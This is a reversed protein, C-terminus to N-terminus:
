SGHRTRWSIRQLNGHGRRRSPPRGSRRGARHRPELATRFKGVAIHMGPSRAGQPERLTKQRPIARRSDSRRPARPRVAPFGASVITSVIHRHGVRARPARLPLAAPVVINDSYWAARRRDSLMPRRVVMWDSRLLGRLARPNAPRRRSIPRGVRDIRQENPTGSRARMGAHPRAQMAAIERRRFRPARQQLQRSRVSRATWM